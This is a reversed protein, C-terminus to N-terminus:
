GGCGRWVSLFESIPMKGFCRRTSVYSRQTKGLLPIADVPLGIAEIGGVFIAWKAIRRIPKSVKRTDTGSSTGTVVAFQNAM